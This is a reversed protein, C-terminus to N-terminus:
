HDVEEWLSWMKFTGCDELIAGWNPILQEFVHARASIACEFRKRLWVIKDQTKLINKLPQECFPPLKLCYM